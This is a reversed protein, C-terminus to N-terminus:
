ILFVEILHRKTTGFLNKPLNHDILGFYVQNPSQFTRPFFL